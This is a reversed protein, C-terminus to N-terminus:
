LEEPELGWLKRAYPFYFDRCITQGLGAAMVSAFTEDSRNSAGGPMLKYVLDAGIGFAFRPPLKTLLDVPKLPFHIWRRQLRIRGHRPRDLLDDGLLNRIDALVTPDCSPHLRHSGYDVCIGAVDFSGANGGVQGNREILTVDARGSRALRFAGGLGAPGGGLIVIHPKTM